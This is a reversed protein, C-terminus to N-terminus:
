DLRVGGGGYPFMDAAQGPPFPVIMRVPKSPYPQAGVPHAAVGLLLTVVIRM